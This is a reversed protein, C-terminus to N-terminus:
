IYIFISYIHIVFIYLIHIYKYCIWIVFLTQYDSIESFKNEGSTNVSNESFERLKLPKSIEPLNRLDEVINKNIYKWVIPMLFM